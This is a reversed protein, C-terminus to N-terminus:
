FYSCTVGQVCTSIKNWKTSKETSRSQFNDEHYKGFILISVKWYIPTWIARTNWPWIKMQNKMGVSMQWFYNQIHRSPSILHFNTQLLKSINVLWNGEFLKSWFTQREEKESTLEIWLLAKYSKFWRLVVSYDSNLVITSSINFSFASVIIQSTHETIHYWGYGTSEGQCSFLSM